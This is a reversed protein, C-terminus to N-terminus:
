IADANGEEQSVYKSRIKDLFETVSDVCEDVTMEKRKAADLYTLIGCLRVVKIKEDEPMM